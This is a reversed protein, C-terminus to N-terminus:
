MMDMGIGGDRQGINMMITGDPETHGIGPLGPNQENVLTFGCFVSQLNRNRCYIGKIILRPMM